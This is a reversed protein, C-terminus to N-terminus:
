HRRSTFSQDIACIELRGEYWTALRKPENKKCIFSLQRWKTGWHAIRDNSAQGIKWSLYAVSIICNTPSMYYSPKRNYTIAKYKNWTLWKVISLNGFFVIFWSFYSINIILTYYPMVWEPFEQFADFLMWLGAKMNHTTIFYSAM